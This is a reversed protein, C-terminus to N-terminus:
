NSNNSFKGSRRAPDRNTPQGGADSLYISQITASPAQPDSGTNLTRVTLIKSDPTLVELGVLGNSVPLSDQTLNGSFNAQQGRFYYPNSTVSVSVISSANVLFPLSIIILCFLFPFIKKM